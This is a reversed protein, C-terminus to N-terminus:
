LSTVVQEHELRPLRASCATEGPPATNVVAMSKYGPGPRLPDSSCLDSSWDWAVFDYPPKKKYFFFVL